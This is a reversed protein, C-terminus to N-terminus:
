GQQDRLFREVEEVLSGASSPQASERDHEEELRAVWDVTDDDEEVLASIQREYAASAIDLEVTPVALDLYAGVREVLALAAKPSRAGSAYTPVAAWFSATEFGAEAALNGLVGVIGTPGEYSSTALGLEAARDVDDTAGYVPVPRTHAVEALLAGLTVVRRIGLAEAVALVETCFTRWRLHPETGQLVVLRHSGDRGASLENEPWRLLREDDVIRVEPRSITFDYFDDPDVTAFPRARLRRALFGAATTAADGADNWGEFAALLVGEGPDPFSRWTIHPTRAAVPGPVGAPMRDM